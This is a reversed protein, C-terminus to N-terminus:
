PWQHDQINVKTTELESKGNQILCRITGNEDDIIFRLHYAQGDKSRITFEEPSTGTPQMIAGEPNHEWQAMLSNNHVYILLVLKKGVEYYGSIKNYFELREPEIKPANLQEQRKKERTEMMERYKPDNQMSERHEAEAQAEFAKMRDPLDAAMQGFDTGHPFAEHNEDNCRVSRILWQGSVSELSFVYDTWPGNNVSDPTRRIVISAKPCMAVTAERENVKLDYFKPHYDYSVLLANWYKWGELLYHMLGREYAYDEYAQPDSQAFLFGFDLLTGEVWSDYMIIFFTNVTSKVKDEPKLDPNSQAQVWESYAKDPHVAQGAIKTKSSQGNVQAPVIQV